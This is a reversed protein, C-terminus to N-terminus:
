SATVINPYRQRISERARVVAFGVRHLTEFQKLTGEELSDIGKLGQLALFMSLESRTLDFFDRCQEDVRGDERYYLRYRTLRRVRGPTTAKAPIWRDRVKVKEYYFSVLVM